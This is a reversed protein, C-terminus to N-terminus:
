EKAERLRFLLTRQALNTNVSLLGLSLLILIGDESNAFRILKVDSYKSILWIFLKGVSNKPNVFNVVSQNNLLLIFFRGASM